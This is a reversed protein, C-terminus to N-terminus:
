EPGRFVKSPSQLERRGMREAAKKLGIALVNIEFKGELSGSDVAYARGLRNPLVWTARTAVAQVEQDILLISYFM